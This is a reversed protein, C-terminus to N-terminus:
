RNAANMIKNWSDTDITISDGNSLALRYVSEITPTEPDRSTNIDIKKASIILDRIVTNPIILDAVKNIKTGSVSVQTAEICTVSQETFVKSYEIATIFFSTNSSLYLQYISGGTSEANEYDLSSTKKGYLITKRNIFRSQSPTAVKIPKGPEKEKIETKITKIELYTLAGAM